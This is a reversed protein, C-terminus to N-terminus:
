RSCSEVKAAPGAVPSVYPTSPVGETAFAAVMAQAAREADSKTPLWAFM